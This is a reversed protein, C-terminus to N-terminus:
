SIRARLRGLRASELEVEDGIDLWPGAGSTTELLCGNGMTGSAILDGPRLEAGRSAEAILEAFSWHMARGNSTGVEESNVRAVVDIALRGDVILDSVESVTVLWPGISTAFDKSKAPGLGVAMERRQSDRASWDNLLTFGAIHDLADEAPIDRGGIGVIAAIEMEFDFEATDAPKIVPQDPGHISGHNGFYFVPTQYWLAPVPRDRLAYGAAVHSEFAYFDRFSAPQPLPAAIAAEWVPIAVHTPVEPATDFDRAFAEAASEIISESDPWVNLIRIIESSARGDTLGNIDLIRDGQLVGARLTNGTAPHSYTLLKM